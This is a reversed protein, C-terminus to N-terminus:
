SLCSKDQETKDERGGKEEWLKVTKDNSHTKGDKVKYNQIIYM